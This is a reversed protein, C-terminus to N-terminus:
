WRPVDTKALIQSFIIDGNKIGFGKKVLYQAGENDNYEDGIWKYLYTMFGKNSSIPWTRELEVEVYKKFDLMWCEMSDFSLFDQDKLESCLKVM